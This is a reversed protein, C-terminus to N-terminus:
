KEVREGEWSCSETVTDCTVNKIEPLLSSKPFVLFFVNKDEVLKGFRNKELGGKGEM